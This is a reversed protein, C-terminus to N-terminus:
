QIAQNFIKGMPRIRCKILSFQISTNNYVKIYAIIVPMLEQQNLFLPKTAQKLIKMQFRYKKSLISRFYLKRTQFSMIICTEERTTGLYSQIAVVCLSCDSCVNTLSTTVVIFFSKLDMVVQLHTKIKQYHELGM